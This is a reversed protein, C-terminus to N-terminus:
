KGEWASCLSLDTTHRAIYESGLTGLSVPNFYPQTMRSFSNLGCIRITSLGPAGAEVLGGGWHKCNGCKPEDNEAMRRVKDTFSM